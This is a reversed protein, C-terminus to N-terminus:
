TCNPPPSHAPLMCKDSVLRFYPAFHHQLQSEAFFTIESKILIRVYSVCAYGFAYGYGCRQYGPDVCSGHTGDPHLKYAHSGTTASYQSFSHGPRPPVYACGSRTQYWGRRLDLQTQSKKLYYWREHIDIRYFGRNGSVGLPSRAKRAPEIRGLLGLGHLIYNSVLLFFNSM